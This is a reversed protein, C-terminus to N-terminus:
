PPAQSFGPEDAGAVADGDAAGEALGGGASGGAPYSEVAALGRAVAGGAGGAM